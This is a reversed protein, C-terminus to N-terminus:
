RRCVDPTAPSAPDFYDCLAAFAGNGRVLLVYDGISGGQDAAGEAAPVVLAVSPNVGDLTYAVLEGMFAAETTSEVPAFPTIQSPDVQLSRAFSVLYDKGAVTAGAPKLGEGSESGPRPTTQILAIVLVAAAAFAIGVLPIAWKNSAQRGRGMADAVVRDTSWEVDPSSSAARLGEALRDEFQSESTM